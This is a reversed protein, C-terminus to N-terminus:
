GAPVFLGMGFHCAYGFAAPGRVPEAFELTLKMAANVRAGNALHKFFRAALAGDGSPEALPSMKAGESSREFDVSALNWGGGRREIERRAQMEWGARKKVSYRGRKPM